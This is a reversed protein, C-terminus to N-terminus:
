CEMSIRMSHNQLVDSFQESRIVNTRKYVTVQESILKKLLEVALKKEKMNAVEKLFNPDFLSFKEM